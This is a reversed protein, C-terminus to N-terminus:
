QCFKSVQTECKYGFSFEEATLDEWVWKNFLIRDDSRECQSHKQDHDQMYEQAVKELLNESERYRLEDVYRNSSRSMVVWVNTNDGCTSPIQIEIGYVNHHCIVRVDLVPGIETYKYIWLKAESDPHTRSLTYERCSAIRNEFGGNVTHAERWLVLKKRTWCNHYSNM